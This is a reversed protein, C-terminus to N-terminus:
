QKCLTDNDYFTINAPKKYDIRMAYEDLLSTGIIMQPMTGVTKHRHHNRAATPHNPVLGAMFVLRVYGEGCGAQNIYTTPPLSLYYVDKNKEDFKQFGIQITPFASFDIDKQLICYNEHWFKADLTKNKKGAHAYIYAFLPKYLNETLIIFGGTGTDLIASSYTNSPTAIPKKDQTFFGATNIEYFQSPLLKSHLSSEPLKMPGLHYYSKGKDACLVFTLESYKNFNETLKVLFPTFQAKQLDHHIMGIISSPQNSDKLVFVKMTLAHNKSDSYQLPAIYVSATDKASGYQLPFTEHTADVEIKQPNIAGKTLAKKCSPCYSEDAIFVMSSSGTDIIAEIEQPNKTGVKLTATYIGYQPYYQLPITIGSDNSAFVSSLLSFFLFSVNIFGPKM